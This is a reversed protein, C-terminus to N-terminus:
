SGLMANEALVPGKRGLAKGPSAADADWGQLPGLLEGPTVQLIMPSLLTILVKIPAIVITIRIIVRTVLDWSGKLVRRALVAQFGM